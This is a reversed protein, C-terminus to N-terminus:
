AAKLPNIPLVEDAAERVIGSFVSRDDALLDEFTGEEVISGKRFVIIRQARKLSSLRHAIMIVTRGHLVNAIAEMVARENENDLAATAEDLVLIPPDQLFVRALALRQRQGGSLNVGREGVGYSYGGPFAEIEEDMRALAAARRIEEMTADPTGFAINQAVTGTFLFPTQGVFGFVRKVDGRSLANITL